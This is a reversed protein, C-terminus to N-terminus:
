LKLTPKLSKFCSNVVVFVLFPVSFSMTGGETSCDHFLKILYNYMVGCWLFHVHYPVQLRKPSTLPDPHASSRIARKCWSVHRGSVHIGSSCCTDECVELVRRMHIIVCELKVSERERERERPLGDIVVVVIRNRWHLGFESVCRLNISTLFARVYLFCSIKYSSPNLHFSSTCEETRRVESESAIGTAILGPGSSRLDSSLQLTSGSIWFIAPFQRVSARM